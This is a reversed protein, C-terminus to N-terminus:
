YSVLYTEILQRQADNIKAKPQMKDLIRSWNSQDYQSPKYLNHCCGCNAVYLERGQKLEEVTTRYEHEKAKEVNRDTPLYYKSKCATFIAAILLCILTIKKM